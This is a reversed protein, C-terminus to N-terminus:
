QPKAFVKDDVPTNIQMNSFSMVSSPSDMKDGIFTTVMQAMQIGGIVAYKSYQVYIKGLEQSQTEDFAPLYTAPDFYRVLSRGDGTFRLALYEKGKLSLRGMSEVQYKGADLLMERFSNRKENELQRGQMEIPASSGTLPNVIWGSKGDFGSRIKSGMADYETYQYSPAKFVIRGKMDLGVTNLLVDAKLTQLGELRSRGGLAEISRNIIETESQAYGWLSIVVFLVTLYKRM